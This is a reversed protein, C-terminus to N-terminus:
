KAQKAAIKEFLYTMQYLFLAVKNLNPSNICNNSENLWQRYEEKQRNIMEAEQISIM